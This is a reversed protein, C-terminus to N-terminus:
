KWARPYRYPTQLTLANVATAYVRGGAFSWRDVPDWSGYRDDSKDRRQNDVIAKGEAEQWKQWHVGGVQFLAQTGFFWYCYDITGAEEDYVPLTKLCLDAGKKVYEDERDAGCLIRTLIAQATGGETMDGPWRKPDGADKYYSPGNGRATYGARGYEPETVKDFWTKAGEFLEPAVELGAEKGVWPALIMWGTVSTDNDQPRVGYRWAMYPNRCAESFNLANQAPGKLDPSGTMAYAECLALAGLAHNYVFHPVTRPGVCGEKDQFDLLYEIGRRVAEGRKPGLHTEGEGLFALLALASLGTNFSLMGPGDCKNKRCHEGFADARWGGSREQHRALWDLAAEVSDPYTRGTTKYNRRSPARREVFPAMVASRSPAKGAEPDIRWMAGTAADRVAPHFAAAAARLAPVAGRADPGIRELAAAARIRVPPETCHVLTGALGPIAAAGEKAAAAIAEEVRAAPAKPEQIVELALATAPPYKKQLCHALHDAAKTRLDGVPHDLLPLFLPAAEIGREAVFPWLRNVRSTADERVAKEFFPLVGAGWERLRAAARDHHTKGGVEGLIREAVGEADMPYLFVAELARAGVDGEEKWAVGLLLPLGERCAPDISALAIAAEARVPIHPDKLAKVLEPVAKAAAPGHLGLERAAAVRNKGFKNGLEQILVDVPRPAKPDEPAAAALLVPLLLAALRM